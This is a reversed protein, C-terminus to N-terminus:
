GCLNENDWVRVSLPPARGKLVHRMNVAPFWAPIGHLRGNLYSFRSRGLCAPLDALRLDCVAESLEVGANNLSIYHPLAPHLSTKLQRRSLRHM